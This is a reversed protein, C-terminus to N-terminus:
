VELPKGCTPCLKIENLKFTLEDIKNIITNFENELKNIEQNLKLYNQYDLYLQNDFDINFSDIIDPINVESINKAKLYDRLINNINTLKAELNVLSEYDFCEPLIMTKTPILTSLSYYDERLKSLYSSHETLVSIHKDIDSLKVMDLISQLLTQKTQLSTLSQQSDVINTKLLQEDKKIEDIIQFSSSINFIDEFLRFMDTDSEGYPFLKSWEDHINVVKGKNDFYFGLDVIDRSTLKSAKVYEQNTSNNIYSSSTQTKIWTLNNNNNIITVKTNKADHNICDAVGNPNLLANQVAYFTSSKGSANPGVIVTIGVPFEFETKGKLIQFDELIVKM